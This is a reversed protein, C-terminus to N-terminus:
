ELDDLFEELTEGNLFLLQKLHPYFQDEKCNLNFELEEAFVTWECEFIKKKSVGFSSELEEYFDNLDKLNENFKVALLLVVAAVILRNNKNVYGRLILKELYVIAIAVTSMEITSEGDEHMSTFMKMKLERIDSLSLVFAISPHKEFFSENLDEMIDEKRVFPIMSSIFGTFTMVKRKRGIGMSPDDLFNPDYEDRNSHDLLDDYSAENSDRRKEKPLEEGRHFGFISSSILPFGKNTFFISPNTLSVEFKEFPTLKKKSGPSELPHRLPSKISSGEMRIHTLFSLPDVSKPTISNSVGDTKITLPEINRKEPSTIPETTPKIVIPTTKTPVIRSPTNKSTTTKSNTAPKSNDFQINSLFSLAASNKNQM